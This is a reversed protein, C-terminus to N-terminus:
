SVRDHALRFVSVALIAWGLVGRAHDALSSRAEFLLLDLLGGLSPPAKIVSQNPLGSFVFQYYAYYIQPSLWVFFWFLLWSAVLGLMLRVFWGGFTIVGALRYACVLCLIALVGSLGVLGLQGFTTLTFFSDGAYM